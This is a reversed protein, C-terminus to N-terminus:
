NDGENDLQIDVVNNKPFLSHNIQRLLNPIAQSSNELIETAKQSLNISKAIEGDVIDLVAKLQDPNLSDNQELADKKGSKYYEAKKLYAIELDRIEQAENVWRWYHHDKLSIFDRIIRNVKQGIIREEIGLRIAKKVFRMDEIINTLFEEIQYDLRKTFSDSTQTLVDNYRRDIFESEGWERRAEGNKIQNLDKQLELILRLGEQVEVINGLQNNSLMDYLSQDMLAGGDRQYIESYYMWDPQYEKHSWKETPTSEAQWLNDHWIVDGESKIYQAAFYGRIFSDSKGELYKRDRGWEGRPEFVFGEAFDQLGSPDIEAEKALSNYFYHSIHEFSRGYGLDPIEVRHLNDSLAESDSVDWHSSGAILQLLNDGRDVLIFPDLYFKENRLRIPASNIGSEVDEGDQQYRTTTVLIPNIKSNEKVMELLRGMGEEDDLRAKDVYKYGNDIGIFGSFDKLSEDITIAKKFILADVYNAHSKLNLNDLFNALNILNNLYSMVM